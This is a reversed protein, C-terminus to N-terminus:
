AVQEKLIRTYYPKDWLKKHIERMSFNWFREFGPYGREWGDYAEKGRISLPKIEYIDTGDHHGVEIKLIGDEIEIRVNYAYKFAQRSFEKFDYFIQGGEFDGRWTGINGIALLYSDGLLEEIRKKAEDYDLDNEFELQEWVRSDDVGEFAEEFDIGYEETDQEALFNKAENFRNEDYNDDYLLENKIVKKYARTAKAKCFVESGFGRSVNLAINEHIKRM